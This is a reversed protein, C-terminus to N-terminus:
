DQPLALDYKHCFKIQNEKEFNGKCHKRTVMGYHYLVVKHLCMPRYGNKLMRWYYDVDEWSAVEFQEDLYGVNEVVERTTVWCTGLFGQTAEGKTEALHKQKRQPFTVKDDGLHTYPCVIGAEPNSELYEILETLWNGSFIVDNSIVALYCGKGEKLGQNWARAVGINVPNSIIRIDKLYPKKLSLSRFYKETSDTSGNNILILEYPYNTSSFLSDLCERTYQLQNWASMIVSCIKHEM